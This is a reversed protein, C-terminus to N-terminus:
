KEDLEEEFPSSVIVTVKSGPVSGSRATMLKVFRTLIASGRRGSSARRRPTTTFFRVLSMRIDIEIIEFSPLRSETKRLM